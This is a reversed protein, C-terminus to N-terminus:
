VTGIRSNASNNGFHSCALTTAHPDNRSPCQPLEPLRVRVRLLWELGPEPFDLGGAPVRRMGDLCLVAAGADQAPVADDEVDGAVLVAQDHPEIEVKADGVYPEDAGM